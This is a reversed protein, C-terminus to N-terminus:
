VLIGVMARNTFFRWPLVPERVHSSLTVHREWLLLASWLVVTAVLLTIVFASNWAFRSDAEQFCATFALTAMMLLISGPIDLRHLTTKPSVPEVPPHPHLLDQKSQGHHPFGNPIGIMAMFLVLAGIPVSTDM